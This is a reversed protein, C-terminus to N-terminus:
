VCDAAAGGRDEERRANARMSSRASSCNSSASTGVRGLEGSLLFEPTQSLKAGILGGVVPCLNAGM